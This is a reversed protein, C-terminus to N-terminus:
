KKLITEICAQYSYEASYFFFYYWVSQRSFCAYPITNNQNVLALALIM